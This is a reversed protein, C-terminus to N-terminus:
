RGSPRVSVLLPCWPTFSGFAAQFAFGPGPAPDNVGHHRHRSTCCDGQEEVRQSSPGRGISLGDDDLDRDREDRDRSEAYDRPDFDM